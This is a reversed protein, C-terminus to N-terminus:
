TGRVTRRKRDPGLWKAYVYGNIVSMGVIGILALIIIKVLLGDFNYRQVDYERYWLYDRVAFYAAIHAAGDNDVLCKENLL